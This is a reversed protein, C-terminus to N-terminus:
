IQNGSPRAILTFGQSPQLIGLINEQLTKSNWYPIHKLPDLLSHDRDWLSQSGAQNAVHCAAELNFYMGNRVLCYSRQIEKERIPSSITEKLVKSIEQEVNELQDEKCLAELMVLSGQELVTLDMDVCEVLQLNERLHKVLRSRRGEALLSTAIDAGMIMKQDKAPSLQWAIMLRATELRPIIIEKRGKCFGLSPSQIANNRETAKKPLKALLSKKLVHDIGKPISGSIALCCNEGTYHQRHFARMQAPNLRQLSAEKGLISRGYPHQPWCSELLKQFAQEDPQDKYQAIEELVVERELCFAEQDIKPTLVLNLLLELAQLASKSPVLVYFHVDDFGTAANSSGGLAEIQLDFEGAELSSSGKFVMHELFHALGEEGPNEFASGARCWLDLCTLPTDPISAMVIKAGNKLSWHILRTSDETLKAQSARCVGNQDKEFDHHKLERNISITKM